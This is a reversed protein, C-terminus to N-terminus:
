LQAVEGDDTGEGEENERTKETKAANLMALGPHKRIMWFCPENPLRWIGSKGTINKVPLVSIDQSWTGTWYGLVNKHNTLNHYVALLENDRQLLEYFALAEGFIIKPAGDTQVM